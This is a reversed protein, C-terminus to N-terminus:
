SYNSGAMDMAELDDALASSRKVLAFGIPMREQQILFPYRQPEEWYAALTEPRSFRGDAGIPQTENAGGDQAGWRLRM